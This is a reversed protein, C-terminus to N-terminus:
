GSASCSLCKGRCQLQLNKHNEMLIVTKLKEPHCVGFLALRSSLHTFCMQYLFPFIIKEVKGWTETMSLPFDALVQEYGPGPTLVVALLHSHIVTLGAVQGWRHKQQHKQRWRSSRPWTYLPSPEPELGANKM